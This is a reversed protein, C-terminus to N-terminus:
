PIGERFRGGGTWSKLVQVTLTRELLSRGPMNEEQSQLIEVLDQEAAELLIKRDESSLSGLFERIDRHEIDLLFPTLWTGRSSRILINRARTVVDSSKM